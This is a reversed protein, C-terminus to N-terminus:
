FQYGVFLLVNDRDSLTDRSAGGTFWTYRLEGIYKSLYDFRIGGLMQKRGEVFNQGLGPGVGNLDHFLGTLFEINAGFLANDFRTLGIMRYGYSSATGFGSRDAHATPNQRLGPPSNDLNISYVNNADSRVDRPNIGISGDAGATIHTATHAGNFQLESLEPMDFVYNHGMELLFTIQSANFLNDGGFTKLLTLGAQGIKMQEYGRIYEGPEYGFQEEGSGNIFTENRYVPLFTPFAARQGPVISAGVDYNEHPFAAAVSSFVLDVSHVQIPLNTRYAYEGSLAWDGLTTNFSVGFMKINEPYEAFLTMTDLPIPEVGAETQPATGIIRGTPALECSGVLALLNDAPTLGPAGICSAEAAAYTSISPVRAHYNAFYFALETGGNLEELFFKLAAGYQGGDKPKRREEEAYDRYATRSSTSGLLSLPDGANLNSQYLKGPDEPAKGLGLLAYQGGEGLIDSQSFFSGVPDAVVPQWEYQYFVELNIAPFLEANISLMGVPQALEKLDFGPIRLLAQNPPNISNLSNALLFSSEGWNLVQNGLKVAVQRGALEFTRSVFYDLLRVDMGIRDENVKPFPTRADIMTTDPHKEEFDSFNLDYLALGRVFVNFDAISLSLDSTLKAAAHVIDGKDFNLNGNDMNIDYSGPAKVFAINEPSPTAPDPPRAPSSTSCARGVIGGDFENPSDSGGQPDPGDADGSTRRVCLGPILNSKGILSNKHDQARMLAGVTFLSDLKVPTGFLDFEFAQVPQTLTMATLVASFGAVQRVSGRRTKCRHLSQDRQPM